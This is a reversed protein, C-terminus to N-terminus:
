TIAGTLKMDLALEMVGDPTISNLHFGAPTAYFNATVPTSMPLLLTWQSRLGADAWAKVITYNGAVCNCVVNMVDGEKLGAVFEKYRNLSEMHTAEKQELSFGFGNISKVELVSTYVNPSAGSGLKLLAGYGIQADTAAM